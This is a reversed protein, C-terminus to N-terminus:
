DKQENINNTHDIFKPEICVKSKERLEQEWQTDQNRQLGTLQLDQATELFKNVDDQGIYAEGNYLFSVVNELELRNIGKLYIFPSPHKTQKLINSFFQSGASLIIKHAEMTHGDDSALTVDFHNKSEKMERFFERINSEFDNWKLCFKEM